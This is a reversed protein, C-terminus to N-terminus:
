HLLSLRNNHLQFIFKLFLRVRDYGNKRLLTGTKIKLKKGNVPLEYDERDLLVSELFNDNEDHILLQIHDRENYGFEGGMYANSPSNLDVTKRTTILDRDDSSM